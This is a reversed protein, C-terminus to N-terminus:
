RPSEPSYIYVFAAAQAVMAVTAVGKGIHPPSPEPIRGRVLYPLQNGHCRELRHLAAWKHTEKSRRRQSLIPFAWRVLARTQDLTNDGCFSLLTVTVVYVLM